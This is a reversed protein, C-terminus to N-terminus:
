NFSGAVVLVVLLAAITAYKVAPNQRKVPKSEFKRLPINGPSSRPAQTTGASLRTQGPVPVLQKGLSPDAQSSPASPAPAGPVIMPAHCLPCEIQQGAWADDAQVPQQCSPCDFIMDAMVDINNALRAGDNVQFSSVAPLDL